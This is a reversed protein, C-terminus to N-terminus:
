AEVFTDEANRQERQKRTCTIARYPLSINEVLELRKRGDSLATKVGQLLHVRLRRLPLLSGRSPGFKKLIRSQQSLQM